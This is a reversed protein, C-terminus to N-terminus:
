RDAPRLPVTGLADRGAGRPQASDVELRQRAESRRGARRAARGASSSTSRSPPGGAGSRRGRDCRVPRQEPLGSSGDGRARAVQTTGQRRSSGARAREALEPVREITPHVEAGLEALVAAQYGSGAGVDLVRETEDLGLVEGIWAVMYPQSITQGPGIPLAADDYAHEGTAPVFLERPVREMAELVREDAIDAGRLQREVM